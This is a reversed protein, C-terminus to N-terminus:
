RRGARNYDRSEDYGGTPTVAVKPAAASHVYRDIPLPAPTPAPAPTPVRGAIAYDHPGFPLQQTPVPPGMQPRVPVPPRPTPSTPSGRNPTAGAAPMFPNQGPIQYARGGPAGTGASPTIGTVPAWGFQTGVAGKSIRWALDNAADLSMGPQALLDGASWGKPLASQRAVTPTNMGLTAYLTPIKQQETGVDWDQLKTILDDRASTDAMQQNRALYDPLSMGVREAREQNDRQVMLARSQSQQEPTFGMTRKYSVDAALEYSKRDVLTTYADEPKIGAALQAGYQQAMDPTWHSQDSYWQREANAIAKDGLGAVWNLHEESSNALAAFPSDYATQKDNNPNWNPKSTPSVLLSPNIFDQPNFKMPPPKAAGRVGAQETPVQAATFNRVITGDADRTIQQTPNSQFPDVTSWVLRGAQYTGYMSIVHGGPGIIDVQKGVVDDMGPFADVKGTYAGTAPDQYQHVRVKVPVALQYRIEGEDGGMAVKGDSTLYTGHAPVAVPVLNDNGKVEPANRDFVEWSGGDPSPHGKGDTRVVLATGSAVNDLLFRNDATLTSLVVADSEKGAEEASMGFLDDKLTQGTPRGDIANVTNNIRGVIGGAYLNYNKSSKDLSGPPLSKLFQQAGAGTLWDRYNKIAAQKEMPSAGSGAALTTDMLGRYHENQEVFSDVAPTGLSLGTVVSSLSYRDMAKRADTADGKLGAKQARNVRVTAGNRANNALATLTSVNLVGSFNDDYKKIEATIKATALPDNALDTLLAAFNAPDNEGEANTLKSWGYDPQQLDKVDLYGAELAYLAIQSTAAEYPAEERNYTATQAKSYALQAARAASGHGRATAAAKFKAAQTMLSRYGESQTPLKAAWKRYFEAMEGDSVSKEAYKQGMKSEAIEFEYTQIMNNYYDWMPDGESVGKLREKWHALFVADTVKKGEFEGGQKWVDEINRDRQGQYQNALAIITSTLSPASRPLRGFRAKTAM